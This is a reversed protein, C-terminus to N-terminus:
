PKSGGGPKHEPPQVTRILSYPRARITDTFERLNETALRINELTEDINEGNTNLTRNLQEVLVKAEDLTKRMKAISAHLDDRNEGLMSDLKKLTDDAQKATQKFQDVTSGLKASSEDIHGLASKIRPRNEALMNDLNGLTSSVRARNQDNLLDNTREITVKLQIVRDNLNSILDQVDPGLENLMDAVDTIGFFEKSPLVSGSKAFPSEPKGPEIELYNEGLASLTAVKALSDTKVPVDPEVSFDMIVRTADKPDVTINEVRGKRIGAYRVISGKELGGANKFYTHFTQGSRGLAGGIAFITAILVSAAIVVFVGVFAQEKKSEM